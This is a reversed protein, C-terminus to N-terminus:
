APPRWRRKWEPIIHPNRVYLPPEGAMVREISEIAAAPLSEISEVTHGVMHPTLIAASQALKRLPNDSPPPEIEFVDIAASQIHGGAVLRALATEDAIGGRATNVFIAGRKLLSLREASLMGRTEVNLPCLVSVIDSTSLLEDLEVRKVEAPLPSRLRPTFTQIRVDWGALRRAIARAIAGFGILGILKDKIMRATVPTPHPRNERLVAESGRLDYVCALMLMVTAEAMSETNEPIQGNGVLIGLETAGREDIGDTGTVPSMVARLRLMTALLDRGLKVGLGILVDASQHGQRDQAFEDLSAYRTVRYGRELLGVQIPNYLIDIRAPDVILIHGGM